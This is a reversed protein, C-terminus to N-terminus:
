VGAVRALMSWEANKWGAPSLRVVSGLDKDPVEGVVHVWWTHGAWGM